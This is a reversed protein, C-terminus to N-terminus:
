KRLHKKRVSDTSLSMLLNDWKLIVGLDLLLKKQKKNLKQKLIVFWSTWCGRGRVAKHCLEQTDAAGVTSQICDRCSWHTRKEPLFTCESDTGGPVQVRQRVTILWSMGLERGPSTVEQLVM